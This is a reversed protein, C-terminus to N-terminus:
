SLLIEQKSKKKKKNHVINYLPKHMQILNKEYTRRQKTSGNFAEFSVNDFDKVGENFHQSLRTLFSTTEGIYVIKNKKRLFYICSKKALVSFDDSFIHHTNEYKRILKRKISRRKAEELTIKEVVEEREEENQTKVLDSKRGIRGTNNNLLSDWNSDVQKIRLEKKIRLEEKDDM